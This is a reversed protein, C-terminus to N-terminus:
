IGLKNILDFLKSSVEDFNL